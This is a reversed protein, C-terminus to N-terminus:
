CHSAVRGGDHTLKRSGLGKFGAGRIVDSGCLGDPRDSLGRPEQNCACDSEGGTKKGSLTHAAASARLGEARASTADRQAVSREHFRLSKKENIGIAQDVAGKV